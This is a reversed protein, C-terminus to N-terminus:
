IWDKLEEGMIQSAINVKKRLAVVIRDDITNEALLDIYTMPSEQGIRDIRAESQQRKELDYGNSYYIMTSAATLTIGYGGTATTGVLFRVPGEKDQFKKINDQRQDQPTLGYYTVVSNDGHEKKIREVITEVDYQYHAWIVVKGHVENLLDSLEDTRNNKLDKITGDDATFHGCTIQHLRMLQTMVTATTMLKGQFQALALQSMQKYAHEQEKTLKVIRKMFTKKPLDLCEDKLVRYSFAKLMDTLEPLNRYGVVIQVSRGGFNATKMIAYRTRFSYYSSHGLLEPALFDCQKYLDLPSKTIPSGTLIRRYKAHPGLKCINKTRKADPNKITTSEDITMMTNHCSLFKYAFEIGKKTSFSEVNMVLIHLDEGTEFLTDLKKQQKININAQWMVAKYEVHDPMHGPIQDKYWTGIVGKPAIILAGNIKGKDYLMAINDILVKSKGTGMEMFYAFYPKEWSLALANLQHQYPKTKFKYNMM